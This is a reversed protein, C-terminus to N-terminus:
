YLILRDVIILFLGKRPLWKKNDSFKVPSSSGPPCDKVHFVCIQKTHSLFGLSVVFGKVFMGPTKRVNWLGYDYFSIWNFKFLCLPMTLEPDCRYKWHSAFARVNCEERWSYSKNVNATCQTLHPSTLHPSCPLHTRSLWWCGTYNSAYNFAEMINTSAPPQAPNCRQPKIQWENGGPPHFSFPPSPLAPHRRCSITAKVVAAAGRLREGM